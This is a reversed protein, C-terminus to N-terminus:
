CHGAVTKTKMQLRHEKALVEVGMIDGKFLRGAQFIIIIMHRLHNRTCIYQRAACCGALRSCSHCFGYMIRLLVQLLRAGTRLSGLAVKAAMQLQINVLVRIPYRESTCGPSLVPM